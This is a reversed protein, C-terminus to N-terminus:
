HETPMFEYSVTFYMLSVYLIYRFFVDFTLIQFNVDCLIDESMTVPYVRLLFFFSLFPNQVVTQLTTARPRVRSVSPFHRYFPLDCLQTLNPLTHRRRPVRKMRKEAAFRASRLARALATVLPVGPVTPFKM